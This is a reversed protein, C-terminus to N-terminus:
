LNEGNSKIVENFWAFSKKKYRKMDKLDADTRNVFIFGYRKKMEGQSSLIDIPAWTIFSRVDVNDENIAAKVALIQNKFYDIRYDDIITNNDDLEEAVGVGSELIYIPLHYRTYVENLIYRLGTHDITWGWETAELYPNQSTGNDKGSITQIATLIPDTNLASEDVMMSMYYSLAIASITNEKLQIEDAATVDPYLNQAVLRKKLEPAYDGHVLLHLLEHNIAENVKKAALCDEPKSTKPYIPSANIMGFVIAQPNIEKALKVVNSSALALHHMLQYRMKSFKYPDKEGSIMLSILPCWNQENMPMYYKVMDKYRELVIRTYTKFAEVTERALWGNYKKQLALPIDFHYLCIIPEIGNELLSDIFRDYFELGQQNIVSEGDTLVRSWAISFRYCNIGLEKLLKADEEYRNYTDIGASFDRGGQSQMLDYISPGKGYELTSAGETQHASVSGGWLFNSPFKYVM